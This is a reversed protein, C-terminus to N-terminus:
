VTVPPAVAIEGVAALVADALGDVDSLNLAGISIRFGPASSLRYLSGPAVAYGLDRLAAVSGSEDSTSVWVNIGTHGRAPVGRRALAEVLAARRRGYTERAKAVTATVRDDGWLELVLRQLVSSVWGSGLRMRGQVRAITAADGALLAVRLDPGYPKSLSRALAWPRGAGALTSLPVDALEAGHDDEVVLVDPAGALVRRLRAGREATIYGGTPNQARSTVVVAAVGASLARRLGDPTPGEADVPVPVPQLGLAAVLDILNAWAPDEIGVRDGPRLRSGLLREVADLTGATVTLDGAPVGDAAFRDRAADVLAPWPGAHAYGVPEAASTALRRLAPGLSPLLRPDPEGTSLDLTGPPAPVRRATRAAVPPRPRVRTGNRGATEVMGRERLGRYAAAVTATAVGLSDALMRVPPLAAGPALAGSRVGAEVSAM